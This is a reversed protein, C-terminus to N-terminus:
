ETSARQQLWPEQFGYFGRQGVVRALPPAPNQASSVRQVYVLRGGPRRGKMQREAFVRM